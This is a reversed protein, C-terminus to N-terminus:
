CMSPPSLRRRKCRVFGLSHRSAGGDTRLSARLTKNYLPAAMLRVSVGSERSESVGAEFT